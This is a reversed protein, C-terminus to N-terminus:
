MDAIVLIHLIIVVFLYPIELFDPCVTKNLQYFSSIGKNINNKVKNQALLNPYMTLCKFFFSCVFLLAYLFCSICM